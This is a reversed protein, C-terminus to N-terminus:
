KKGASLRIWGAWQNVQPQGIQRRPIDLASTNRIYDVEAQNCYPSEEPRSHVFLYWIISLIIGPIAFWYFVHRWGYNVMIWVAIPPISMLAVSSAGMFVGAATGQEQPPYWNKITASGGVPSPGECLGLGLRFWKMMVANASTGILYTFISFGLISFSVMGRTGHKGMFLGGPIQTIAYGLFFFSMLSGAEFNSLNFEAKIMPLVVGLNTRDAFNILYFLFIVALVVWRYRTKREVTTNITTMTTGNSM